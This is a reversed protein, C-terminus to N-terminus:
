LEKTLNERNEDGKCPLPYDMNYGFSIRLRVLGMSNLRSFKYIRRNISFIFVIKKKKIEM